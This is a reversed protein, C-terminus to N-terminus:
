TLMPPHITSLDSAIVQEYNHMTGSGLKANYAVLYETAVASLDPFGRGQRNFGKAPGSNPVVGGKNTGIFSFYAAM